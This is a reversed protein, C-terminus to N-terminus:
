SVLDVGIIPFGPTSGYVCKEDLAMGRTGEGIRSGSSRCDTSPNLAPQITFFGAPISVKRKTRPTKM